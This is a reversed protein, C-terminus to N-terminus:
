SLLHAVADLLQEQDFARKVVYKRAGARLAQEERDSRSTVMITPIKALRPDSRMRRLLELGDVEPMELDTIVLDVGGAEIAALAEAGNVATRVEYGALGLVNKELTRTTISDDVVLVTRGRPPGAGTPAAGERREAPRPAAPAASQPSRVLEALELVPVLQDELSALGSVFPLRRLPEGVPRVTLEAEQEIVDAGLAMKATGVEVVV